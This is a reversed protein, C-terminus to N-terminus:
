SILLFFFVCCLHANMGFLCLLCVGILCRHMDYRKSDVVVDREQEKLSNVPNHDIYVDVGRFYAHNVFLLLYYLIVDVTAVQRDTSKMGEERGGREGRGGRERREGIEERERRM